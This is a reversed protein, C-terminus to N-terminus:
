RVELAFERLPERSQADSIKIWYKGAALPGAEIETKLPSLTGRTVVEASQTMVQYSFSAAPLGTLDPKLLLKRDPPATLASQDRYSALSLSIPATEGARWRPVVVVAALGAAIGAVAILRFPNSGGSQPPSQDHKRAGDRFAAVYSQAKELRDQCYGCYLLHEEVIAVDRENALM